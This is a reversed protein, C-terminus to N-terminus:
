RSPDAGAVTQTPPLLPPIPVRKLLSIDADTDQVGTRIDRGSLKRAGDPFHFSRVATAGSALATILKRDRAYGEAGAFAEVDIPADSVNTVRLTLVLDIRGSSISRALRWSPTVVAKRYGVEMTSELTAQFRDEATGVVEARVLISGAETVRPVSFQVPMRAEGGAAINFRHTRPTFGLADPGVITLTGSLPKNWPNTLVLVGDQPARRSDAFGPEVRFGKRLLCMEESVGEVFLPERGVRLAHGRASPSVTKMRGWLDTAQVPRAGLDVELAVEEVGAENWLVLAPGRAGNALLAPVGNSFPIEAAFRRGCLRTAIQRWAALELAPGPVVPTEPAGVEVSIADFGARWADIARLALDIARDRDTVSGNPLPVIRVMGREGKAFGVYAESGSERWAADAVIELTHRGDDLAKDLTTPVLEEPSWPLTVAPGAIATGMTRAISDMRAALDVRDADVPDVGIFWQDVRQGYALLWPELAPRWRTEDLGFLGLADSHDIREAAALRTPVARLRFMPEVRLDLLKAVLPRLYEIEGAPDRLETTETWVPLVVFASRALETVPELPTSLAGLSAGFRPPQDPEFPDDALVAIRALRRAIQNKGQSFLAEAQYWGTSLEPLELTFDRGAPLTMTRDFLVHEGADRVRVVVSPQQTMPDECRLRLKVRTGPRVIGNSEPEFKVTPMQWLEIDDFYAKGRIDKRPVEHRAGPQETQQDPQVAELWIQLVTAERPTPPPVVELLQWASEARVLESSYVGAIAGGHADLYRASVRVSAHVLGETHTWARLLLDSGQAVVGRDTVLPVDRTFAMSAGDLQFRVAYGNSGALRGVGEATEVSGFQAYGLKERNWNAPVGTNFEASEEFDFRAVLRRPTLGADQAFMSSLLVTAVLPTVPRVDANESVRQLPSHPEPLLPTADNAKRRRVM